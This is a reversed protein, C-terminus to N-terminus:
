GMETLLQTTYTGDLFSTNELIRLHLPINTKIGDIVFEKLATKMKNIAIERTSGKTILKAVLSDYHPNVTDGQCFGSDVRVGFGGPQVYKTITGASPIFNFQDEANIRCEISHGSLHVDKQTLGINEHTAIEIQKKVLDIGSIEESVTHEVQIRTNVELFFYDDGDLLFEVTGAGKYNVAKMIKVADNRINKRVSEKVLPANGEEIIKQNRRQVSCDRDGIHIADGKGDGLIQVEFHKPREFFKELFIDDSGFAAKAENGLIAFIKEM